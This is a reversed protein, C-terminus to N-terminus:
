SGAAPRVWQALIAMNGACSAGDAFKFLTEYVGMPPFRRLIM